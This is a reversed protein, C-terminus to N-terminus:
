SYQSVIWQAFKLLDDRSANSKMTNALRSLVQVNGSVYGKAPDIRDLSPSDWHSGMGRGTNPGFVLGLAPCRDPIIIDGKQISFELGYLKARQKAAFYLARVPDSTRWRKTYERSKHPTKARAERALANLREKNQRRYARHWENYGPRSRVEKAYASRCANCRGDHRQRHKDFYFESIDKEASCKSCQKTAM